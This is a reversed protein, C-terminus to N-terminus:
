CRSLCSLANGEQTSTWEVQIARRESTAPSGKIQKRWWGEPTARTWTAWLVREVDAECGAPLTPFSPQHCVRWQLACGKWCRSPVCAVEVQLGTALLMDGGLQYPSMWTGLHIDCPRNDQSFPSHVSPSLQWYRGCHQKVSSSNHFMQAAMTKRKLYIKWYVFQKFLCYVYQLNRLTM